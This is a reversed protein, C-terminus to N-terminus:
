SLIWVTIMAAAMFIMTAAISDRIGRGIGCVGHGSTCGGGLRTGFGVIIGAIILMATNSWVPPDYQNTNPLLWFVLGAGLMLGFLMIIRWLTDGNKPRLIKACVGSLGPTKKTVVFAVLSGAGILAGGVAGQIAASSEFAM